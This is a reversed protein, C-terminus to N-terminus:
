GGDGGLDSAVPEGDGLARLSTRGTPRPRVAGSYRTAGTGSSSTASKSRPTNSIMAPGAAELEPLREVRLRQGVEVDRELLEEAAERQRPRGVLVERRPDAEEEAAMRRLDRRQM